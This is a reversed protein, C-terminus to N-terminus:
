FREPGKESHCFAHAIKKVIARNVHLTVITCQDIPGVIQLQLMKQIAKLLAERYEKDVM